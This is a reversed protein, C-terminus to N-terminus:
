TLTLHFYGYFAQGRHSNEQMVKPKTLQSQRIRERGKALSEKAM